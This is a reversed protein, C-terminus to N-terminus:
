RQWLPTLGPLTKGSLYELMAGGGTSVFSMAGSLRARELLPITDGGGVVSFAGHGGARAIARAIALTGRRYRPDECKGLPGNWVITRASRIIAAYERETKPGIDLGGGRADIPERIKPHRLKMEAALAGGLLIVDALPLMRRVVPLKTEVKIGAMVVVFPHRPRRLLRDLNVIEEELLVGAYSPLHKAVGAVSAHTRHSVAFADNVFINAYSALERALGASNREEGSEFRINELLLVTGDSLRRVADRVRPGRVAPVWRVSAKLQRALLPALPKTSLAAIRKGDPRGLHTVLIVRAGHSLLSRLTPLSREIRVRDERSVRGGRITVNFDVRVLVRKGRVNKM